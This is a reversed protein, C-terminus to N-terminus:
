GIISSADARLPVFPCNMCETVILNARSYICIANSSPFVVSIVQWIGISIREWLSNETRKLRTYVNPHICKNKNLEILKVLMKITKALIIQTNVM